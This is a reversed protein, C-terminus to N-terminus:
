EYNDVTGFQQKSDSYHHPIYMDIMEYFYQGTVKENGVFVIDIKEDILYQKIKTKDDGFSEKLFEILTTKM